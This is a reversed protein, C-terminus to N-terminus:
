ERRATKLLIRKLEDVDVPKVLHHDFGAELSRQRDEPQSWGTQAVLVVHALAPEARIRRAVDYGTMGPLGIDLLAVDPLFSAAASVASPGDHAVSVEYGLLELLMSLSEAQDANDDVVLVRCGVAVDKASRVPEPAPTSEVPPAALPLRVVFESGKGRGVSRAEITGGHLEVLSRALSLGVGLGGRVRELSQDGQVFMEFIRPLIEPPIGIGHDRVRVVVTEDSGRGGAGPSERAGHEVIVEIASRPKSFKVANNLLNVFVQALRVPDVDLYLPRPPITLSLTHRSADLTPRLTEVATELVSRLTVKEVSLEIKREAIRSVDVLDGVIRTMQRMQRQLVENARTLTEADGEALGMIEVANRMPALPSRLEHALMALFEDKRRDGELLAQEARKLQDIDLLVIVAGDIKHDSTRYPHVRLLHWRGERDRVEREIPSVRDVVREIVQELDEVAVAPKIDGISRGVDTPLLSMALRAPPTFRRIRLDGGVMVVPINTSALLNTMDNTARALEQNRHQLQENVTTLEENASQLEEKATELEENTSQLEENSSLIEENASRLEENAADQQEVLSQLFERTAALEQRLQVLERGDAAAGEGDGALQSSPADAAPSAAVQDAGASDHFIVLACGDTGGPAQVPVVELDVERYAGDSRLRVNTRRSVKGHKLADTLASRLEVFLGERAMKLLNTTPEGSPAELYLGTRGRFQMVDFSANVLVSPPSYRGLLIRDAERQLDNRSTSTTGPRHGAVTGFSRSGEAAFQVSPRAHTQKKLYVKSARDVLEFLEANDGVTEASGLVLYGPSNLAYHFTPLVRKQLPTALYILVNRCSILDLHSFPPDSTVNQRAFVCM